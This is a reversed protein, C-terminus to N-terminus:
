AAAPLRRAADRWKAADPALEMARALFARADDTRRLAAAILGATGQANAHSVQKAAVDQAVDFAAEAHGALALRYCVGMIQDTKWVPRYEQLIRLATHPRRDVLALAILVARESRLGRQQAIFRQLQHVDRSRAAELLAGFRAPNNMGRESAHGAFYAHVPACPIAGAIAETHRRDAADQPDSIVYIKGAVDAPAIAMGAHMQSSFYRNVRTDALLRQDITFQPSFALVIDAALARSYKIAAYGGQSHGYAIRETFSGGIRELLAQILAAMDAAPYWCPQKAVFGAVSLGRAAAAQSAWFENGGHKQWQNAFTILLTDGGRERLFCAVHETELIPSLTGPPRNVLLPAPPDADYVRTLAALEDERRRARKGSAEDLAAQLDCLLLDHIMAIGLAAAEDAVGPDIEGTYVLVLRRGATDPAVQFLGAVDRLTAFRIHEASSVTLSIKVPGRELHVYVHNPGSGTHKWGERMLQPLCGYPTIMHSAKSGRGAVGAIRRAWAAVSGIRRSGM